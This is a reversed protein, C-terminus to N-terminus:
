RVATGFYGSVSGVYSTATRIYFRTYVTNRTNILIRGGVATGRVTARPGTHWVGGRFRYQIYVVRTPVSSVSGSVSLYRGRSMSTVPRRAAVRATSTVAVSPSVRSPAGVAAATVWRYTGSVGNLFRYAAAGTASTRLAAVSRWTTTGRQMKQLTVIWSPTANGYQDTVRTAATIATGVSARVPISMTARFPVAPTFPTPVAVPGNNVSLTAGTADAATVTVTLRRSASTFTGGVPISRNYDNALSTPTSDLEYSGGSASHAPDDRLVRVGWSPRFPNVGAVADRGSDTRYEVFYSAGSPDTIKLTRNATTTSLPTIRATTVGSNAPIKLVAGPLLNMGDLHVANLNGEGYTAGSYGMVDFLDDYAKATCGPFLSALAPMDQTGTCRLANSHYLGLNHGLEHALLSQDLGSVFVENGSAEVAGVSGLGYDCNYPSADAGNPAVLVLHKGPGPTYSLRAQAETWMDYTSSPSGCAHASPYAQVQVTDFSVQGGTQSSWYASVQSVMARATADTISSDAPVGTPLVLAVYIHHVPSIAAAVPASVTTASLVSASGGSAPAVKASVTAGDKTNALSGDTLPVFKSGVRLVKTTDNSKAGAVDPRDRPQERIITQVTGTLKLPPPTNAATAAPATTVILGILVAVPV